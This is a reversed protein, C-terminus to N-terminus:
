RRLISAMERKPVEVLRISGLDLAKEVVGAGGTAGTGGTTSAGAAGSAYERSSDARCQSTAGAKVPDMMATSIAWSFFPLSFPPICSEDYSVSCSM